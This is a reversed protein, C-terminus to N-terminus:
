DTTVIEKWPGNPVNKYDIFQWWVTSLGGVKLCDRLAPSLDIGYRTNKPASNGFVYDFDDTEGPGVDQWQAYCIEEETGLQIWRNKVISVEEASSTSYWPIKKSNEKRSKNDDLDNYPLAFYFPNQKPTFGQPLYGDRANPDDVGGYNEQWNRDWASAKNSIFENDETAGEGVWFITARVGQHFPGIGQPSPTPKPKPSPSQAASPSPSGFIWSSDVAKDEVTTTARSRLYFFLVSSFIIVLVLSSIVLNRRKNLFKM